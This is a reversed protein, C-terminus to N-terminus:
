TYPEGGGGPSSIFSLAPLDLYGPQKDMDGAALALPLLYSNCYPAGLPLKLRSSAPAYSEVEWRGQLAVPPLCLLGVSCLFNCGRAAFQPNFLIDM